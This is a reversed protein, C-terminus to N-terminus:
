FFRLFTSSFKLSIMAGYEYKNLGDTGLMRVSLFPSLGIKFNPRNSVNPFYFWWCEVRMRNLNDFPNNTGAEGTFNYYLCPAYSFKNKGPYIQLVIAPSFTPVACPADIIMNTTTIVGSSNEPNVVGVEAAAKWNNSYRIRFQPSYQKAYSKGKTFFGVYIIECAYSSENTSEERSQDGAPYYKYNAAGYEVKGAVSHRAIKGSEGTIDRIYQFVLVARWTSTFRDIQLVNDSKNTLPMRFTPRLVWTNDNNKKSWNLETGAEIQGNEVSAIADIYPLIKLNVEQSFALLPILFLISFIYKQKM